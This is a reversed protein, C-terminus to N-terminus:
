GCDWGNGEDAELAPEELPGLDSDGVCLAIPKEWDSQGLFGPRVEIPHDAKVRLIIHSRQPWGRNIM